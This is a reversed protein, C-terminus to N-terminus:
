VKDLVIGIEPPCGATITVDGDLCLEASGLGRLVDELFTADAGSSCRIDM